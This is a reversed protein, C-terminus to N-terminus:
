KQWEVASGLSRREFVMNYLDPEVLHSQTPQFGSAALTALIQSYEEDTQCLEFIIAKLNAHSLTRQAGNLFPIESGDVDVKLYNPFPLQQAAIFEDLAVVTVEQSDCFDFHLDARSPASAIVRQHGGAWPQAIKITTLHNSAGVAYKYPTLNAQADVGNLELNELMTQFNLAEPEFAFCKVKRLAAYLAFRGECAGLDYLVEGAPIRDIFDMVETEYNMQACLELARTHTTLRLTIGRVENTTIPKM